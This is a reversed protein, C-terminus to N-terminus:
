RKQFSASGEFQVHWQGCQLCLLENDHIMRPRMMGNKTKAVHSWAATTFSAKFLEGAACIAECMAEDASAADLGLTRRCFAECDLMVSLLIHRLSLSLPPELLDQREATKLAVSGQDHASFCSSEDM